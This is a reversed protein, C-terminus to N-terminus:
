NRDIKTKKGKEVKNLLDRVFNWDSQLKVGVFLCAVERQQEKQTAM